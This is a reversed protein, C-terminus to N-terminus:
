FPGGVKPSLGFFNGSDAMCFWGLYHTTAQTPQLAAQRAQTPEKVARGVKWRRRIKIELACGSLKSGEM